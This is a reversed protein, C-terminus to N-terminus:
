GGRMLNRLNIIGEFSASVKQGVADLGMGEIGCKTIKAIPTKVHITQKNVVATKDEVSTWVVLDCLKGTNKFGDIVKQGTKGETMGGKGDGVMGYEDTPYHTLVLNKQFSRCTHLVTTMRDNPQGYEIPQLRERYENEDMPTNKTSSSTKWKYEQIEQLEQLRSNHDINWLMTASDFIITAIPQQCVFVFDNIINQWVEKMGEVRKPVTIRRISAAPTAKATLQGLLKNVQLPKPYPKTIIDYSSFKLKTIDEDATAEYIRIDPNEKKLRWAARRFGGVDIDFHFMPKPYSLAMSSKCSGEDGVIATIGIYEFEIQGM